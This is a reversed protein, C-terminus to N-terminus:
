KCRKGSSATFGMMRQRDRADPRSPKTAFVWKFYLGELVIRFLTQTHRTPCLASLRPAPLAFSRRLRPKV